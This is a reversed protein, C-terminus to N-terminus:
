AVVPRLGSGGCVTCRDSDEKLSSGYGNCHTCMVVGFPCLCGEILCRLYVKRIPEFHLHECESCRIAHTM